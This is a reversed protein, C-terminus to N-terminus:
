TELNMEKVPRGYTYLVRHTVSSEPWTAICLLWKIIDLSCLATLHRQVMTFIREIGWVFVRYLEENLSTSALIHATKQSLIVCPNGNPQPYCM